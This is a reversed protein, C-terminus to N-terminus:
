YVYYLLPRGHRDVFFLPSSCAACHPGPSSQTPGVTVMLSQGLTAAGCAPRMFVAFSSTAAPESGVVTVSLPGTRRKTSAWMARVNPWWSRDSARLDTTLSTHHYALAAKLALAITADDFPQLGVPNPCLTVAHHPAAAVPAPYIAAPFSAAVAVTTV